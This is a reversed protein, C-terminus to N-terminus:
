YVDFAHIFLSTSINCTLESLIVMSCLVKGIQGDLFIIAYKFIRLM